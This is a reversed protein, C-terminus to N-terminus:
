GWYAVTRGLPSLKVAFCRPPTPNGTGSKGLPAVIEGQCLTFSVDDLM